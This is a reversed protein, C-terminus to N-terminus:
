MVVVSKNSCVTVRVFPLGTSEDSLAGSLSLVTVTLVTIFIQDHPEVGLSFSQTVSRWNCHSKSKSGLWCQVATQLFSDSALTPLETSLSGGRFSFFRTVLCRSTFFCCAPFPKAPATTIQLTHLNATYNYTSVLRTYLHDIFVFGRRYEFM